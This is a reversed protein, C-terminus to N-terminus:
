PRTRCSQPPWPRDRTEAPDLMCCAMQTLARDIAPYQPLAVKRFSARLLHTAGLHFEGVCGPNPVGRDLDCHLYNGGEDPLHIEAYAGSPGRPDRFVRYGASDREGDHNEAHRDDIWFLAAARGYRQPNGFITIRLNPATAEFPGENRLIEPTLPELRPLRTMMWIAGQDGARPDPVGLLYTGPVTYTRGVFPFRVLPPM